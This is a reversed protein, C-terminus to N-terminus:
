RTEQVLKQLRLLADQLLAKRTADQETAQARQLIFEAVDAGEVYRVVKVALSRRLDNPDTALLKVAAPVSPKGITILAEMAPYREWLPLPGIKQQAGPDLDIHQILDSIGDILRHRGILYIAAAQVNRSPSTGLHRLLIGLLENRQEDVQSLLKMRSREDLSDLQKMVEMIQQEIM